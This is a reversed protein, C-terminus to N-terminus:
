KNGIVKGGHYFFWYIANLEADSLNPVGRGIWGSVIDNYDHIAGDIEIVPHRNAGCYSTIYARVSKTAITYVASLEYNDFDINYGDQSKLIVWSGDIEMWIAEAENKKDYIRVGRTANHKALWESGEEIITAVYKTTDINNVM